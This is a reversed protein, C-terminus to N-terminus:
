AKAEFTAESVLVNRDEGVPKFWIDFGDTRKTTQAIEIGNSFIETRDATLNSILKFDITYSTDAFTAGTFSVTYYPASSSNYTSIAGVNNPTISSAQSGNNVVNFFTPSAPAVAHNWTTKYNNFDSKRFLVRGNNPKPNGGLQTNIVEVLTTDAWGAAGGGGQSSSNGGYGGIIGSGGGGGGTRGYGGNNQYDQSSLELACTLGLTNPNQGCKVMTRPTTGDPYSTSYYSNAPNTVSAGAASGGESTGAVNCGGGNGGRAGGSGSGGGGGCVALLTGGRKMYVSGGGSGQFQRQGGGGAAKGGNPGNLQADSNGDRRDGIRFTYYQGQEFTRRITSVGGEGDGGAGNGSSGKLTIDMEIDQETAFVRWWGGAPRGQGISTSDPNAVSIEVEETSIDVDFTGSSTFEGTTTNINDVNGGTQYIYRLISKAPRNTLIFDDSTIEATANPHDVIVNYTAATSTLITSVGGTIQSLVFVGDRYWKYEILSQDFGATMQARATILVFTGQAFEKTISM